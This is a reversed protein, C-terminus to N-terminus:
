WIVSLTQQASLPEFKMIKSVRGVKQGRVKKIIKKRVQMHMLRRCSQLVFDTSAAEVGYRWTQLSRSFISRRISAHRSEIGSIDTKQLQSHAMLIQRVEPACLDASMAQLALTFNDKVCQKDSAIAEGFEPEKILRYTKMPYQQHPVSLLQHVAAGARSLLTHALAKSGITKATPQLLLSWVDERMLLCRVCDQFETEFVQYCALLMPSSRDAITSGGAMLKEAVKCREGQEFELGSTALHKYLLDSLPVVVIKMLALATEVDGQLWTHAM